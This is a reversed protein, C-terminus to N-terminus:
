QDIVKRFVPHEFITRAILSVGIAKPHVRDSSLIYSSAKSIWKDIASQVDIYVVSYKEALKKYLANIEDVHYREDSLERECKEGRAYVAGMGSLSFTDTIMNLKRLASGDQASGCGVFVTMVFLALAFCVTKKM